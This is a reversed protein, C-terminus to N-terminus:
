HAHDNAVVAAAQDVVTVPHEFGFYMAPKAFDYPGSTVVPKRAFNGHPPPSDTAWELTRAGWPNAPAKKGRMLSDAANVVFILTSLGLLFSSISIFLNWNTLQTDYTAVRRAMGQFGVIHMPFFTMNFSVFTLWFHIKGLRENLLRGTVKPWWMYLGAWIAMAAGAYLVYHIHAVLFYSDHVQYDVPVVSLWIGTIGGVLFNAIMGLAFLMPSTLRINGEFLTAVWSFLKIGTPVAIVMTAVSFYVQLWPSIGDPFMHHAWVLFGLAAIMVSSYAIARYGFIPKRAFVPIIESMIGFGPLIMIYVAPHSYFWFLHQWLIVSGGKAPNFFPAGTVLELFQLATDGALSPTAILIMASTALLAWCFLPLRHMSMGRTRMNLLTTIFNIATLTSSVGLLFISVCWLEQGIGGQLAVPPYSTWGAQSAGGQAQLLLGSFLLVGGPPLLLYSALNLRPFAVDDAGIMLPMLYNGFGGVMMPIIALFIMSTGHLTYLQDYVDPSVFKSGPQALDVRMLLAVLGSVLFFFFGTLMYNIGIVKHDTSFVHRRWWGQEHVVPLTHAPSVERAVVAM